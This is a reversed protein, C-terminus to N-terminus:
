NIQQETDIIQWRYQRGLQQNHKEKVLGKSHPVNDKLVTCTKTYLHAWAASCLSTPKKGIVTCGATLALRMWGRQLGKTMGPYLAEEAKHCFFFYDQHSIYLIRIHNLHRECGKYTNKKWFGVNKPHLGRTNLM